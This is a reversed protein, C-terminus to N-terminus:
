RTKAARAVIRVFGATSESREVRLGSSELLALMWETTFRLKRYSSSRMTWGSAAREHVVDTVNVYADEWELVCTLIRQDDGRVLVFRDSGVRPQAYDRYSLVLRGEPELLTRVSAIVARVADLSGLHTITDGMCLIVEFRGSVLSSADVIDGRVTALRVARADGRARLM